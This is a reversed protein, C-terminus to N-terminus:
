LLFGQTILKAMFKMLFYSNGINQIYPVKYVVEIKKKKKYEAFVNEVVTHPFHRELNKDQVGASTMLSESM